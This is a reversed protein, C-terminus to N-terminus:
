SDDTIYGTFPPNLHHVGAAVGFYQNLKDTSFAYLAIDPKLNWKEVRHDYIMVLKPLTPQSPIVNNMDNLLEKISSYYAGFAPPLRM